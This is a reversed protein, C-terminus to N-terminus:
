SSLEVELSKGTAVPATPPLSFALTQSEKILPAGGRMGLGWIEPVRCCGAVLRWTEEGPVSGLTKVM